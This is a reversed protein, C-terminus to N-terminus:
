MLRKSTARAGISQNNLHEILVVGPQKGKEFSGLTDDMQLAKAGNYTAWQLIEATPITFASEQQIRRIEDLMNLSWNSSYSDTGIVLTAKNKRLLNVPPMVGEIYWNANACICFAISQHNAASVQLAFQIDEETIFTNHILLLQKPKNLLPLYTQLSSKGSPLFSSADMNIAAYLKLFDGTKTTYLEDEALCEQNHISVISNASAENILGFMKRSITYPAHPVLSSAFRKNGMALAAFQEYVRNYQEFREAAKDTSLGLVEIFNHWRINSKQKVAISDTTNSIDGVAVTGSKYLEQEALRMADYIIEASFNRQQVVSILFPVLGTRNPIIGKMHSLELHCHCNVFGPCIIGKFKQIDDGADAADTIAEVIGSDTTILVKNRHLMQTGTFLYDAQFKKFGM